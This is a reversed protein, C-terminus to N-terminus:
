TIPYLNDKNEEKYKRYEMKKIKCLDYTAKIILINELNVFKVVFKKIICNVIITSSFRYFMIQAFHESILFYNFISCVRILINGHCCEKIKM